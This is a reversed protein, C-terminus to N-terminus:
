GEHSDYKFKRLGLIKGWADNVIPGEVFIDDNLQLDKVIKNLSKFAEEKSTENIVIQICWSM